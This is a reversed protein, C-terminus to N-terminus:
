GGRVGGLLPILPLTATHGPNFINPDLTKCFEDLPRAGPKDAITYVPDALLNTQIPEEDKGEQSTQEERKRFM